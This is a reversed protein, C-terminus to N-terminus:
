WRTKQWADRTRDLHLKCVKAHGYALQGIEIIKFFGEENAEKQRDIVEGAKERENLADLKTLDWVCFAAIFSVKQGVKKNAKQWKYLADIVKHFKMFKWCHKLNILEKEFRFYRYELGFVLRKSVPNRSDGFPRKWELGTNQLGLLFNDEELFNEEKDLKATSVLIDVRDNYFKRWENIADIVKQFELSVKDVESVESKEVM